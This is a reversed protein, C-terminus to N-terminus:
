EKEPRMTPFLIVDRISRAGTLIMVLRDIGIGLGGAPPMGARLAEVFDMDVIGGQARFRAEQDDPDNLESFANGIEMGAVYPEFREVLHPNEPRRKALPSISTPFDTVFVPEILLPEAFRDFLAGLAEEEIESELEIGAERAARIAGDADGPTLAPGGGQRVAEFWPLRKWPPALSVVRAPDGIEIEATGNVALAAGHILDEALAMMTACDGYAEYVELMTFEPNHNRDMGENRFNRNLEFVREFGGVLLRKLHLEPAIRLFLEIALANHHTVFPRASAGGALPQLIPTEVEMFGKETLRRRIAAIIAARKKFVERVEPNAILDLHRKRHRTEVDALGHWKAPLPALAKALPTWAAVAVTVEGTRTRFLPGRVAIFDGLDLLLAAAFSDDGLVAKKFYLQLRGSEDEVVAFFTKGHLRIARIRGAVRVEPGSEGERRETGGHVGAVNGGDMPPMPMAAAAACATDREARAPYPDLGRARLEDRKRRRGALEGAEDPPKEEPASM